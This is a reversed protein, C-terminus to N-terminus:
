KSVITSTAQLQQPMHVLAADLPRCYVPGINCQRSHCGAKLADPCSLQLDIFSVAPHHTLPKLIVHQEKDGNIM